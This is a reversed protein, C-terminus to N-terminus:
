LDFRRITPLIDPFTVRPRGQWTPEPEEIPFLLQGRDSISMLQSYLHASSPHKHSPSSDAPNNQQTDSIARAM